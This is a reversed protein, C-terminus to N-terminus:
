ARGMAPAATKVDEEAISMLLEDTAREENLTLTLPEAIDSRGILPLVTFAFFARDCHRHCQVRRRRM